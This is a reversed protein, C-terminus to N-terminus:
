RKLGLPGPRLVGCALRAARALLHRTDAVDLGCLIALYAVGGVLCHLLIPALATTERVQWLILVLIACAILIKTFGAKPLPLPFLKRGTLFSGILILAYAVVTSVAAGVLAMPPILLFNLLANTIAGFAFICTLRLPQKPLSFALALCFAQFGKLVTAAAIWPMLERATVQFAEGFFTEAIAPALLAYAIAAPLALGLLLEAQRRILPRVAAEGGAEYTRLIIPNGAMAVVVMLIYMSRMALDCPAAYLGAADTGILIGVIYRDSADIIAALAGTMAFPFGYAALERVLEKRLLSRRISGWTPVLNPLVICLHGAAVGFLLGVSGWGIYALLAGMAAAVAVRLFAFRIYCYAKGRMQFTVLTLEALSMALLIGTGLVLLTRTDPALVLWKVLACAGAIVLLATAGYATAIHSLLIAEHDQYAPLFRALALTLWQMMGAYIMVTGSLVLAYVGYEGPSLLRTYIAVSLLNVLAAGFRGAFYIAGSKLV